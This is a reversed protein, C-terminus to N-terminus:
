FTLERNRYPEMPPKYAGNVGYAPAPPPTSYNDWKATPPNSRHQYNMDFPKQSRSEQPAVPPVPVKPKRQVLNPKYVTKEKYVPDPSSDLSHIPPLSSHHHGTSGNAIDLSSPKLLVDSKPPEPNTKVEDDDDDNSIDIVDNSSSVPVSPRPPLADQMFNGLKQETGGVGQPGNKVSARIAIVKGSELQLCIGKPSKLVIVKQGAKLYIKSKDASNTQISVDSPLFSSVLM